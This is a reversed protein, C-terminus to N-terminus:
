SEHADDIDIIEIKEVMPGIPRFTSVVEEYPNPESRTCDIGAGSTSRM